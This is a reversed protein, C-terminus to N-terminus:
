LLPEGADANTLERAIDERQDIPLTKLYTLVQELPIRSVERVAAKAQQRRESASMLLVKALSAAAAALDPDFGGEALASRRAAIVKLQEEVELVAQDVLNPTSEDV